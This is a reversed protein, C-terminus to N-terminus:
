LENWAIYEDGVKRGLKRGCFPCFSIPETRVRSADTMEIVIAPKYISREDPPVSVNEIRMFMVEKASGGTFGDGTLMDGDILNWGGKCYECAM